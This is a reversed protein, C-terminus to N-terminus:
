CAGGPREIEDVNRRNAGSPVNLLFSSLPDGTALNPFQPAATQPATFDLSVQSLPSAFNATDWGLGFKVEHNGLIRTYTGRYEYSDTAKPTDDISEGGNAL